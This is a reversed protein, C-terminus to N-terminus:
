PRQDQQMDFLTDVTKLHLDVLGVEGEHAYHERVQEQAASWCGECWVIERHAGHAWLSRGDPRLFMTVGCADCEQLAM